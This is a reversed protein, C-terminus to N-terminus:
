FTVTYEEKDTKEVKESSPKHSGTKPGVLKKEPDDLVINKFVVHVCSVHLGTLRTIEQAILSQIEDAKEPIPIGYCINVEVKVNVSHNASDQEAYIGKLGDAASRGFFNEIFNGEVLTIGPIKSLCHIVISQLARTEIDRVFLTEPLEFEKTDVRSLNIKSKVQNM